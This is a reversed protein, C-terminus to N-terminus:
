AQHEPAHDAVQPYRRVALRDRMAAALTEPAEDPIPFVSSVNIECLVYTDEGAATRPGLLLDADWIVPLDDTAIGLLRCLDRAETRM